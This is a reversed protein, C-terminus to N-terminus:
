ANTSACSRRRVVHHLSIQIWPAYGSLIMFFSDDTFCQEPEQRTVNQAHNQNYVGHCGTFLQNEAATSFRSNSPTRRWHKTLCRILKNTCSGEVHPSVQEQKVGPMSAGENSCMRAKSTPSTGPAFSCSKNNLHSCNTELLFMACCNRAQSVTPKSTHNQAWLCESIWSQGNEEFGQAQVPDNRWTAIFISQKVRQPKMAAWLALSLCITKLCFVSVQQLKVLQKWFM